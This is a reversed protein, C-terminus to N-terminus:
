VMLIRVHIEQFSNSMMAILMNILVVVAALLYIGYLAYGVYMTVDDERDHTDTLSIIKPAEDDGMGFTAFYLSSM